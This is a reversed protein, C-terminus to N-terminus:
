PRNKPYEKTIVPGEPILSGKHDPDLNITVTIKHKLYDSEDPAVPEVLPLNALMWDFIESPTVTDHFNKSISRKAM